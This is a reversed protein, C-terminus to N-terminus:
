RNYKDQARAPTADPINSGKIGIVPAKGPTTDKQVRIFNRPSEAEKSEPKDEEDGAKLRKVSLAQTRRQCEQYPKLYNSRIEAADAPPLEDLCTKVSTVVTTHGGEFEGEKAAAPNTTNSKAKAAPDAQVHHYQMQATALDASAIFLFVAATILFIARM